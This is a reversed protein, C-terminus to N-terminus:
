IFPKDECSKLEKVYWEKLMAIFGEDDIEKRYINDFYYKALDINLYCLSYVFVDTEVKNYKLHDFIGNAFLINQLQNMLMCTKGLLVLISDYLLDDLLLHILNPYVKQMDPDRLLNRDSLIDTMRAIIGLKENLDYSSDSLTKISQIIYEKNIYKIFALSYTM